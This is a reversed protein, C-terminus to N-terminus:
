ISLINNISIGALKADEIEQIENYINELKKFPNKKLSNISDQPMLVIIHHHTKKYIKPNAQILLSITM